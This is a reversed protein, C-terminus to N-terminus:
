PAYVVFFSETPHVAYEMAGVRRALAKLGRAQPHTHPIRFIVMQFREAWAAALGARVLRLASTPARDFAIVHQLQFADGDRTGTLVGAPWTEPVWTFVLQDTRVHSLTATTM